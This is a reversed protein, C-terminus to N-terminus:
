ASSLQSFSDTSTQRLEPVLISNSLQTTIRTSLAAVITAISFPVLSFGVFAFVVGSFGIVPGLGFLSAAISVAVIAAIWGAIRDRPASLRSRPANSDRERPFHGWAYEALSGFLLTALLNSTVHGFGSHAFGSTLMGLPYFYSYARFPIQIPNYPNTLGDQIFLYFAAIAVVVVLTGWPVGLYLRDRLLRRWRGAPQALSFLTALSAVVGTALVLYWLATTLEM